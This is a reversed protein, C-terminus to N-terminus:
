RKSVSGSGAVSKTVKPEGTYTVDGSGSVSAVLTETAWVEVDGSGSIGVNAARAELGVLHLDGSGSIGADLRDVKGSARVDGSGRIEASFSEGSLGSLDADSSGRISLADLSPVTIAVRVGMRTSYSGPKMGLVLSGERVETTVFDVLNDDGTVSLSTPEGVRVSLDASGEVVIRHFETVTRSETKSVGSGEITDARDDHIHRGYRSYGDADVVFICGPLALLVPVLALGPITRSNM